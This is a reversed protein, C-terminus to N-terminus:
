PINHDAFLRVSVIDFQQGQSWRLLSRGHRRGRGPTWGPRRTSPRAATARRRPRRRCPRGTACSTPRTRAWRRASWARPSAGSSTLTRPTCPSGPCSRMRRIILVHSLVTMFPRFLWNWISSFLKKKFYFLWAHRNRIRSSRSPPCRSCRSRRTTGLPRWRPPRLPRPKSIDVHLM